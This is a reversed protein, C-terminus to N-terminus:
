TTSTLEFLIGFLHQELDEDQKIRFFCFLKM